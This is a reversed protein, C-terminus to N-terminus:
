KGKKEQKGQKGPVPYDLTCMGTTSKTTRQNLFDHPLIGDLKLNVVVPGDKRMTVWTLHDMEGYEVGALKMANPRDHAHNEASCGGAVSLVYYDHGHRRVHLYNHWDGAFVTYKRDKLASTELAFWQATSWVYPMHMFVFTWRVGRNEDLVRRFWADQEETIFSVERRTDLGSMTDLCVFLCKKYVFSYWSNPGNFERWVERSLENGRRFKGKGESRVIDHNGVVNFFPPRVKATMNTLERMQRRLYYQDDYGGILDGVTMVFAPCLLNVKELANTFAGRACGGARDPVIAFRFDEDDDQFNLHTYPKRGEVVERQMEPPLLSRDVVCEGVKGEDREFVRFAVNEGLPSRFFQYPESVWVRRNGDVTRLRLVGCSDAPVISFSFKGPAGDAAFVRNTGELVEVSKARADVRGTITYSGDAGRGGCSLSGEAEGIDRLSASAMGIDELRSAHVDLPWLGSSFSQEGKATKVTLEPMVARYEALRSARCAFRVSGAADASLGRPAFEEVIKGNPLRWRFSVEFTEGAFSGDPVNRVEVAAQEGAVLSRRYSLVLNPRSPGGAAAPEAGLAALVSMAAALTLTMGAANM